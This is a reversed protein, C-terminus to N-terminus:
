PKGIRKAVMKLTGADEFLLGTIHVSAGNILTVHRLQTGSVQYVLISRLGTDRAFESDAPMTLTFYTVPGWQIASVKGTVSRERPNISRAPISRTPNGDVDAGM